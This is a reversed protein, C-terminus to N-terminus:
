FFLRFWGQWYEQRASPTAEKSRLLADIESQPIIYVIEGPRALNLKDRAQEEVFSVSQVQTLRTKLQRNQQQLAALDAAAKDLRKGAQLSETTQRVLNIALFLFIILLIIFGIKKTM